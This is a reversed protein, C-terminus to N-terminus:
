TKRTVSESHFNHNKCYAKYSQLFLGLAEWAGSCAHRRIHNVIEQGTKCTLEKDKCMDDILDQVISKHRKGNVRIQIYDYLKLTEM